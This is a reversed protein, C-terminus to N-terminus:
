DNFYLYKSVCDGTAIVNSIVQPSLFVLLRIDPVVPRKGDIHEWDIDGLM